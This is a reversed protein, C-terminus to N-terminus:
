RHIRELNKLDELHLLVFGERRAIEYERDSNFGWLALYNRVGLEKVSVLHLVKDDIFHIDQFSIDHEEHFRTLHDRKNTAFDKDLINDTFFYDSLGSNELVINVSLRDKSTAIALIFRQSLLPIAERIGPFPQLLRAWSKIDKKQMEVRKQYFLKKFSVLKSKQISAKYSDFDAQNHVEEIEKKEILQILVYYDDAFNSMPMLQYYKNFIDSYEREFLFVSDMTLSEKLPLSHNPVFEIFTNIATMFSDHISNSIVGDFDFVLIQQSSKM